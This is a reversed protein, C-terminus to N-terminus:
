KTKKSVIQKSDSINKKKQPRGEKKSPKIKLTPIIFPPLGMQFTANRVQERLVAMLSFVANRQQYLELVKNSFFKPDFAILVNVTIDITMFTKDDSQTKGNVKLSASIIASDDSLKQPENIKLDLENFLKSNAVPYEIIDWNIKPVTISGIELSGIFGAYKEDATAM